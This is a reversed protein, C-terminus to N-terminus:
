KKVMPSILLMIDNWWPVFQTMYEKKLELYDELGLDSFRECKLDKVLEPCVVTLHSEIDIMDLASNAALTGTSMLASYMGKSLVQKLSEITQFQGINPFQIKYNNGKVSFVIEKNM